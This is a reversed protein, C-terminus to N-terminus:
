VNCCTIKPESIFIHFFFFFNLRRAANAPGLGLSWRRSIVEAAQQRGGKDGLGAGKRGAVGALAALM